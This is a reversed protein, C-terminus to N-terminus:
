ILKHSDWVFDRTNLTLAWDLAPLSEAFTRAGELSGSRSSFPARDGIGNVANSGIFQAITAASAKMGFSGITEERISGDGGYVSPVKTNSMPSLASLGTYKTEQVIRDSVHADGATSYLEVEAGKLVNKEIYSFYTSGTLNAIIYSLLMTGYNSYASSEGPTYDLQRSVVYEIVDRLTAPTSSNRSRAVDTFIFGIDPSVSRDYGATHELLHQVTIAMARKDAPENYGLLPYVPTTLNILGTSILHNTAAYTFMKSVSALLFKDSPLVTARDSEALTYARSAVLTGNVSAALQAQRVGNRTMFARMITDLSTMVATNDAFGSVTGTTHWERDLTSTQEAFIVAYTAHENGGGSIHIPYLNQEKRNAIEADLQSSTLDSIAAWQGISTDDFIPTVVQDESVDIYVPRWYRKQTEAAYLEEYDQQFWDTQYWVTQRQNVTNEHGLICYQRENPVGYMSVGKITMPVGATANEYTWPDKLGCEQIWSPIQPLVQMIGAFLAESATGTASVHTSVYGAAKWQSLWANYATANVGSITEFAPGEQKTWIGAYKANTSAGYISVSMPHYGDAKLKTVKTEYETGNIDYFVSQNIPNARKLHSIQDHETPLSSVVSVLAIYYLPNFFFSCPMVM